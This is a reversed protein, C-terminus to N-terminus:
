KNYGTIGFKDFDEPTIKLAKWTKPNGDRLRELVYKIKDYSTNKNLELKKIIDATSSKHSSIKLTKAKSKLKRGFVMRNSLKVM